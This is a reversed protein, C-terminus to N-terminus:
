FNPMSKNALTAVGSGSSKKDFFKYVMSSLGRQYGDYKPTSAIEFDKGGLGKDSETRRTLNKSEGYAVDHQSCAKILIMKTFLTQIEVKCLNKM